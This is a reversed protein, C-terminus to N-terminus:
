QWMEKTTISTEPLLREGAAQNLLKMLAASLKVSDHRWPREEDAVDVALLRHQGNIAPENAVWELRPLLTGIQRSNVLVTPFLGPQTHREIALLHDRV